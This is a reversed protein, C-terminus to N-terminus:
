DAAEKRAAEAQGGAAPDDDPLIAAVFDNWFAVPLVFSYEDVLVGDKNKTEAGKSIEVGIVGAPKASLAIGVRWKLRDGIDRLLDVRSLTDPSISDMLSETAITQDHDWM